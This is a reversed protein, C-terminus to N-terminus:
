PGDRRVLHGLLREPGGAPAISLIAWHGPVTVEETTVLRSMPTWPCRLRGPMVRAAAAKASSAARAPHEAAAFAPVLMRTLAVVLVTLAVREADGLTLLGLTLLGLALSFGVRFGAGALGVASGTAGGSEAVRGCVFAKGRVVSVAKLFATWSM